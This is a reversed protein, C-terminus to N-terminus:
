GDMAGSNVGPKKTPHEHQEIKLKQIGCGLRFHSKHIFLLLFFLLLHFNSFIFHEKIQPKCFLLTFVNLSELPTILNYRTCKAM